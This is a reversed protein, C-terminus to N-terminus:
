VPGSMEVETAGFDSYPRYLYGEAAWTVCNWAPMLFLLGGNKTVRRAEAFAQEPNPVHEFVWISWAADFSNDDFPMTTASGVVFKKHYLPAVTTSIDLGTYNSVVDQLYGRGSGIDLVAKDALGYRAAFDRVTGLVDYDDAAREAVAEYDRQYESAATPASSHKRYADEYYRRAANVEEQSM